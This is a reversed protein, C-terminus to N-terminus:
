STKQQLLRITKSSARLDSRRPYMSPHFLARSITKTESAAGLSVNIVNWKPDSAATTKLKAFEAAVPEFSIITGRYGIKRMYQAFQGVNAGVDLILEIDFEDLVRRIYMYKSISMFLKPSAAKNILRIIELAMSQLLM